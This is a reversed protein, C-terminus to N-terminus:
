PASFLNLPTKATFLPTSKLSRQNYAANIIWQTPQLTASDIDLPEPLSQIALSLLFQLIKLAFCFSFVSSIQWVQASVIMYIAFV